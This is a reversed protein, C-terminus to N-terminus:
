GRLEYTERYDEQEFFLRYIVLSASYAFFSKWLVDHGRQRLYTVCDGPVNENACLRLM